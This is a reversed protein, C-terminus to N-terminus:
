APEDFDPFLENQGFSSESPDEIREAPLPAPVLDYAREVCAPCHSGNPLRNLKPLESLAHGCQFCVIRSSM